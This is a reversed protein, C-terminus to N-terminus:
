GLNGVGLNWGALHHAFRHHEVNLLPHLHVLHSAFLSAVAQRQSTHIQVVLSKLLNNVSHGTEGMSSTTVFQLLCQHAGESVSSGPAVM